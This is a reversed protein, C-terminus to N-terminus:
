STSPDMPNSQIWTHNFWNSYIWGKKPIHFPCPSASTVIFNMLLFIRLNARQALPPQFFNGVCIGVFHHHQKKWPIIGILFWRWNLFQHIGWCSGHKLHTAHELDGHKTGGIQWCTLGPTEISRVDTKLSESSQIHIYKGVLPKLPIIFAHPFTAYMSCIPFCIGDM